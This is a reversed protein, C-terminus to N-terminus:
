PAPSLTVDATTSSGPAVTVPDADLWGTADDFYELRRDGSPDITVLRYEGAGLGAIAYHGAADTVAAPTPSGGATM